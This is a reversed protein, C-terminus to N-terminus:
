ELAGWQLSPDQDNTWCRPAFDVGDRVNRASVCYGDETVDVHVSIHPDTSVAVDGVRVTKGPAVTVSKPRGQQQVLSFQADAMQQIADIGEAARATRQDLTRAVPFLAALVLELGLLALIGGKAEASLTLGM